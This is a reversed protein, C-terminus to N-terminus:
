IHLMLSGRFHAAPRLEDRTVFVFTFYIIVNEYLIGGGHQSSVVAPKVLTERGGTDTLLRRFCCRM